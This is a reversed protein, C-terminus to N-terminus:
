DHKRSKLENKYSMRYERLCNLCRGYATNLTYHRPFNGCKACLVVEGNQLRQLMRQNRRKKENSSYELYCKKCYGCLGGGSHRHLKGKCKPCKAGKSRETGNKLYRLRCRERNCLLCYRQLKGSEGIHKVNTKCMPCIKSGDDPKNLIVLIDVARSTLMYKTSGQIEAKNILRRRLLARITNDSIDDLTVWIFEDAISQMERMVYYMMATIPEGNVIRKEWGIVRKAKKHLM